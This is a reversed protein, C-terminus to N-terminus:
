KTRFFCESIAFRSLLIPASLPASGANLSEISTISKYRAANLDISIESKPQSAAFGSDSLDLTIPSLNYLTPENNADLQGPNVM